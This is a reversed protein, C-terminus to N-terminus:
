LRAIRLSRASPSRLVTTAQSFALPTGSSALASLPYGPLVPASYTRAYPPSEIAANTATVQRSRRGQPCAGAVALLWDLAGTRAVSQWAQTEREAEVEALRRCVRTKRNSGIPKEYKCIARGCDHKLTAETWELTKFAEAREIESLEQSSVNGDILRSLKTSRDLVEYEQAETLGRNTGEAELIDARIQERQAAVVLLDFRSSRRPPM